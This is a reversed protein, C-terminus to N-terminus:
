VVISLCDLFFSWAFMQHRPLDLSSQLTFCEDWYEWSLDRLTSGKGMVKWVSDKEVQALMVRAPTQLSLHEETSSEIRQVRRFLLKFSFLLKPIEADGRFPGRGWGKKRQSLFCVKHNAGRWCM